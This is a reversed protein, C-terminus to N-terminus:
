RKPALTKLSANIADTVARSAPEQGAFYRRIAPLSVGWIRSLDSKSHTRLVRDMAARDLKSM